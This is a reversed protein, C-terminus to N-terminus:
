RAELTVQPGTHHNNASFQSSFVHSLDIRVVEAKEAATLHADPDEPFEMGEDHSRQAESISDKERDDSMSIMQELVLREKSTVIDNAATLAWITNASM